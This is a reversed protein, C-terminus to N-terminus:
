SHRYFSPKVYPFYLKTHFYETPNDSFRIGEQLPSLTISEASQVEAKVVM